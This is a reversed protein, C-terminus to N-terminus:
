VTLSLHEATPGFMMESPRRVPQRYTLQLVRLLDM